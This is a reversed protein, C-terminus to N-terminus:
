PLPAAAPRVAVGATLAVVAAVALTIVPHREALVAARGM